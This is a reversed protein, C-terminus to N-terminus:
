LDALIVDAAEDSGGRKGDGGLSLLDFVGKSGPSIYQYDNGWPDKPVKHLYGGTRWHGARPMGSPKEVLAVLGQSTSPYSFNDLHYMELANAIAKIDSAAAVQRAQGAQGVMNPVVLSALVGIIVVVVMIEILTFGRNNVVCTLNRRKDILRNKIYVM